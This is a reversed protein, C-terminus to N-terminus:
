EDEFRTAYTALLDVSFSRGNGGPVLSSLEADTFHLAGSAASGDRTGAWDDVSEQKYGDPNKMVRLVATALVRVVDARLDAAAVPVIDAEITPLRRKLMVWADDLFATANTTEQASLTRWRAAVDAVVAPNPM